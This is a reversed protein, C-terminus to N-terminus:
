NRGGIIKFCRCLQELLILRMLQHPFTMPGFSLRFDAQRLVEESLGLSGGIVFALHGHGQAKWERIKGALEASSLMRGKIDLAIVYMDGRLHKLIVRGEAEKVQEKEKESLYEPAKVDPVEVLNLFCHKRLQKCYKEIGQRVPPEKIKGVGVVTVQV